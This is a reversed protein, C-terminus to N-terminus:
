RKAYRKRKIVGAPLNVITWFLASISNMNETKKFMEYHYRLLSIKGGKVHTISGSKRVRYQSLTKELLHCDAKKIVKLWMAWDNRKKLDPIQIEGVIDANYMVTLCGLYNFAHMKINGIIQPGTVTVGTPIGEESLEDYNTYTFAYGYTKMFGIQDNLKDPLWLDDSDLFAIWKGKAEKLARNRSVAAGCNKDNKLYKIRKDELFSKVVEDTNDKSCDDVIILEWDNYTQSQVSRISDAIYKATNFSPMIISVLESM